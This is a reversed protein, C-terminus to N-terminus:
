NSRQLHGGTLRLLYAIETDTGAEFRTSLREEVVPTLVVTGSGIAVIEVGKRVSRSAIVRLTQRSCLAVDGMEEVGIEAGVLDGVVDLTGAVIAEL